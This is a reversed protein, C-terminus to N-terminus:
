TVIVLEDRVRHLAFRLRGRPWTREIRTGM